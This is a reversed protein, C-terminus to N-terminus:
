RNATFLRKEDVIFLEGTDIDRLGRVQSSVDDERVLRRHSVALKKFEAADILLRRDLRREASTEATNTSLTLM